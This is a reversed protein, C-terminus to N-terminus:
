LSETKGNQEKAISYPLTFTSYTNDIRVVTLNGVNLNSMEVDDRTYTLQSNAIM